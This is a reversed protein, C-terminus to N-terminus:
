RLSMAVYLDDGISGSTLLSSATGSPIQLVGDPGASVIRVDKIDQNPDVYQVQLTNNWADILDPDSGLATSASLYPGNWGSRTNPDFQVTTDNTVPNRFLWTIEFRQTETAVSQIGDLPILKTDHWYQQMARQIEILNSRTATQRASTLQDSCVPIAIGSIAILICLVAILELLTLALRTKM